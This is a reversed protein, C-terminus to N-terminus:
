RESTSSRWRTPVPTEAAAMQRWRSDRSSAPKGLTRITALEPKPTSFHRTMASAWARAAEDRGVPVLGVGGGVDDGIVTFPPDLNPALEEERRKFGRRQM